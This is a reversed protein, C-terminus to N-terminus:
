RQHAYQHGTSCAQQRGCRHPHQLLSTMHDGHQLSSGTAKVAALYETVNAVALGERARHAAAVRHQVARGLDANGPPLALERLDVHATRCLEQGRSSRGTDVM